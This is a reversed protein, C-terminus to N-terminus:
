SGGPMHSVGLGPTSDIDGAKAPPNEVESGGPYDWVSKEQTISERTLNGSHDALHGVPVEIEGHGLSLGIARHGAKGAGQRTDGVEAFAGEDLRDDLGTCQASSKVEERQGERWSLEQWIGFISRENARM